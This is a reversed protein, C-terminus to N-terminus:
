ELLLEGFFVVRREGIHQIMHTCLSLQSPPNIVHVTDKTKEGAAVTTDGPNHNAHDQDNNAQSDAELSVADHAPDHGYDTEKGQDRPRQIETQESGEKTV